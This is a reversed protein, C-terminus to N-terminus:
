ALAVQNAYIGIIPFAALYEQLTITIASSRAAFTVTKAVRDFTINYVLSVPSATSTQLYQILNPGNSSYIQMKCVPVELGYSNAIFPFNTLLSNFFQGKYTFFLNFDSQSCTWASAIPYTIGSSSYTISDCFSPNNFTMSQTQGPTNQTIIVQLAM